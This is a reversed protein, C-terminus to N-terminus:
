PNSGYLVGHVTSQAENGLLIYEKIYTIPDDLLL